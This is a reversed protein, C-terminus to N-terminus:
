MTSGNSVDACEEDNSVDAGGKLLADVCKDEGSCAALTLATWGRFDLHDVVAGVDILYKLVNEHGNEAACHIVSEVRKDTTLDAGSEVLCKVVHEHGNRVACILATKDYMSGANVNAGKEILYKVIQVHGNEAAYYLPPNYYKMSKARSRSEEKRGNKAVGSDGVDTAENVDAGAEILAKVCDMHGYKAAERLAENKDNSSLHECLSM